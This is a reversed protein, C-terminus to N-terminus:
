REGDGARPSRGRRQRESSAPKAEFWTLFSHMPGFYLVMCNELSYNGKAESHM